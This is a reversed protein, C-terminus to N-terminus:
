RQTNGPEQRYCFGCVACEKSFLSFSCSFQSVAPKLSRGEEYDSESCAWESRPITSAKLTQFYVRHSYGTALRSSVTLLPCWIFRPLNFVRYDHLFQSVFQGVAAPSPEQPARALSQEGTSEDNQLAEAESHIPFISVSYNLMIM